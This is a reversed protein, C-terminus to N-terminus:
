EANISIEVEAVVGVNPRYVLSHSSDGDSLPHLRHLEIVEKQGADDLPMRFIHENFYDKGDSLGFYDQGSKFQFYAAGDKFVIGIDLELDDTDYTGNQPIIGMFVHCMDQQGDDCTQTYAWGDPNIQRAEIKYTEAWAPVSALFAIFILFSCLGRM